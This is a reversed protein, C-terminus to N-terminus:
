AAFLKSISVKLTELLSVVTGNSDNGDLHATGNGTIVTSRDWNQLRDALVITVSKCVYKTFSVVARSRCLGGLLDL